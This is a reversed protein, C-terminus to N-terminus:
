IWRRVRKKYARYDDGFKNELYDEEKRIVWRNLAFVLPIQLLVIWFSNLAFAVGLGVLIFGGYIPNRSFRYLGTTVIKTTPEWPKIGTQAKKFVLACYVVVVLGIGILLVSFVFRFLHPVFYLPYIWQLGTGMLIFALAILPPPVRVGPSDQDIVM